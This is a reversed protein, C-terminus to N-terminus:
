RRAFRRHRRLRGTSRCRRCRRIDTRKRASLTPRVAETALAGLPVGLIALPKKPNPARQSPTPARSRVRFRQLSPPPRERLSPGHQVNVFSRTGRLAHRFEARNLNRARARTRRLVFSRGNRRACELTSILLTLRYLASIAVARANSCNARRKELPQPPARTFAPRLRFGPRPFTACRARVAWRRQSGRSTVRRKRSQDSRWSNTNGVTCATIAAAFTSEANRVVRNLLVVQMQQDLGLRAAFQQAAHTAERDAEGTLHIADQHSSTRQKGIAPVSAGQFGRAHHAM